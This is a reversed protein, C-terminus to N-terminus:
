WLRKIAFSISPKRFVSPHFVIAPADRAAYVFRVFAANIRLPYMETAGTSVSHGPDLFVDRRSGNHKVYATGCPIEWPKKALISEHCYTEFYSFLANIHKCIFAELYPM